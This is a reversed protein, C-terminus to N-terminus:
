KIRNKTQALVSITQCKTITVIPTFNSGLQACIPSYSCIAYMTSARYIKTEFTARDVSTVRRNTRNKASNNAKESENAIKTIIEVSCIRAIEVFPSRDALYFRKRKRNWTFRIRAQQFTAQRFFLREQWNAWLSFFVVFSLVSSRDLLVTVVRFSLLSYIFM